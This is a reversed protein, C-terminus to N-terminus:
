WSFRAILQIIRSSNEQVGTIRYNDANNSTSIVPTFNVHNFANILDARFEFTTRGVLRTRKAASIDWRSYMPGTVVLTRLGCSGFDADITEICDPGNAPALYRGTPAGLAGYGTASTASVSFARVTNELIDQPLIYINVPANANIGTPAFEQLKISKRLEKETMGVMRVNGFDLLRGSQIRVVGDIEWGGVLRDIFGNSGSLFRRGRGFPLEYVWNAKLAHTVGAPNDGGAGTQLTKIRPARLSYRESTYAKGFAYNAQMLFGHSLRKTVDMQLGDYRQYGTNSEIIAEDVDPNARFLNRPLGARAANARRAADGDLGTSANTGAPTFPNPNNIALPNTFDTSTWSGGTYRSPDNAQSAPMGTFYALYIPLPGTGPVGTFAFTNGRGAAINARLNAQAQRFENIFGNSIIDTENIDFEGWGQLHRTGVYRVEIGVDAVIKRRIGGTWTQAYPVQLNPNFIHITDDLGAALPYQQQTAFAPPALRSADRFLVPLGRGDENLNGVTANRNVAISVGPNDGFVDSFDAMGAREYALAYSGFLVSDGDEGFMRRLIGDQFAPRYTLGLSPAFNNRDTKFAPTGESYNVFVPARGTLTGPKFLNCQGDAGIGSIGCIDALTATSYSNNKSVFPQQLEYRLGANITLNNRVRWNDQAYFGWQRMTGRQFGNGLYEYQNTDENLRANGLVNSVRGTLLSYLNRANNLQTTSAGPFNATTFMGAAPDGTVM